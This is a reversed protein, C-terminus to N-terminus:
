RDGSTKRKQRETRRVYQDLAARIVDSIAEGNEEAAGQAARWLEDPVRVSRLPTKPQNPVRVLTGDTLVAVGSPTRSELATM